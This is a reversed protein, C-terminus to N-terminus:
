KSLLEQAKTGHFSESMGEPIGDALVAKRSLKVKGQHDVNLVKVVIRDGEKLLDTVKEVRGKM